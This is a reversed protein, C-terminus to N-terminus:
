DRYHLAQIPNRTMVCKPLYSKIIAQKAWNGSLQLDWLSKKIEGKGGGKLVKTQLQVKAGKESGM